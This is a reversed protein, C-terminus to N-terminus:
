KPDSSSSGDPLLAAVVGAIAGGAVALAAIKHDPITVGVAGLVVGLGSFTSPERLRAALYALLRRTREKM